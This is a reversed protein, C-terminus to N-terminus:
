SEPMDLNAFPLHVPGGLQRLITLHAQLDVKQLNQLVMSGGAVIAPEFGYMQDPALPGLKKLARKFLEKRTTDKLDADSQQCGAFFGAIQFDPDKITRKLDSKMCVIGHSAPVVVVSNGSREGWVYLKGFATRAFVHFKDIGPLPTEGMWDDLIAEYDDPNVTWFLGDAYACWGEEKWYSLLQDPLHGKWKEISSSPVEQRSTAEGFKSIFYEFDEDRM